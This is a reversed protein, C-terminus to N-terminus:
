TCIKRLFLTMAKGHATLTPPSRRGGQLDGVKAAGDGGLVGGPAARPQSKRPDSGAPRPTAAIGTISHNKYTESARGAVNAGGDTALRRSFSLFSGTQHGAGHTWREVGRLRECGRGWFSAPRPQARRPASAQDRPAASRNLIPHNQIRPTPRRRETLARRLVHSMWRRTERARGKLGVNTQRPS